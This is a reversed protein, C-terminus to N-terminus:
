DVVEKKSVAFITVGGNEYVNEFSLNPVEVNHGDRKRSDVMVYDLRYPIEIPISYDKYEQLIQTKKHEPLRHGARSGPRLYIDVDRSKYSATFFYFVWEESELLTRLDSEPLDFLAYTIYMRDLIESESALTTQGRPLFIRNHTYVVLDSNIGLDDAVVVSNAETNENLWRYADELQENITYLPATKKAFRYQNLITNGTLSVVLTTAVLVRLWRYQRGQESRTFYVYVLYGLSSVTVANIIIFVRSAFHDSQPVVGTIVNINVVAIQAILLSVLYVTTKKRGLKVGFYTIAVGVLAYLSYTKWLFWKFAHGIELGMRGVLEEYHPLAQVSLQNFWFPISVVGGIILVALLYKASERERLIFLSCVLIGLFVTAYVFFYFYLYFLSGFFIGSFFINIREKFRIQLVQHVFFLFALFFPASPIFSERRLYTLEGHSVEPFAAIFPDILQKLELMSSPFFVNSLTPFVVFIYASLTAFISSRTISYLVLFLALFSLVPFVSDSLVIGVDLSNSLTFFPALVSASLIPWFKPGDDHEYTDVEGPLWNGDIMERYRAGHVNMTDHDSVLTLTHYTREQLSLESYHTWHPIFSYIIAVFICCVIILTKSMQFSHSMTFLINPTKEWKNTQTLKM